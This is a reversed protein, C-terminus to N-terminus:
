VGPHDSHNREGALRAPYAGKPKGTTGSTYSMSSGLRSESSPLDEGAAALLDEYRLWGAPLEDGIAIYTVDGTVEARAKEVVAVLEPGAIVVNAGSDNLIYAVEHERLRYNLLV